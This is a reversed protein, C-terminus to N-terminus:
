LREEEESIVKYVTEKILAAASEPAYVGPLGPAYLVRLGINEALKRDFGGPPSALEMVMAGDAMMCLMPDTIVRAPVTNVVADFGGISSELRCYELVELGLAEIMARDEDRRAVCGVYAGLAALRLSLLTGIRGWGCVLVRLGQVTRESEEMLRWLAGEATIAANGMVFDARRMLDATAIGARAALACSEDSFKGGCLLQHPWLCDILEATEVRNDSLPTNLLAGTEAPVPLIVCDAGYLCGQLCGSRLVGTPLRAKELAFSQVRHGDRELMACLLASRRDGGVVAFKM